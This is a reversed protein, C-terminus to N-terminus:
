ETAPDETEGFVPGLTCGSVETLELICPQSCIAIKPHNTSGESDQCSNMKPGMVAVWHLPHLHVHGHFSCNQELGRGIDACGLGCFQSQAAFLGGQLSGIAVM